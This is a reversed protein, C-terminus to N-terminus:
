FVAWFLGLCRNRRRLSLEGDGGTGILRARRQGDPPAGGCSDGGGDRSHGGAAQQIAKATTATAHRLCPSRRNLQQHPRAALIWITALL